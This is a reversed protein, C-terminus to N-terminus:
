FYMSISLATFVHDHVFSVWEGPERIGPSKGFRPLALEPLIAHFYFATLKPLMKRDWLDIDQYIREIHIQYPNTRRVVFDVWPMGTVHLQGQCQYFFVHSRKLSLANGNLNLCFDSKKTSAERLGMSNNMLVNKVELLGVAVNDVFVQGDPSAALFNHEPHIVLGMPQVLVTDGDGAKNIIYDQITSAESDMGRRTCANGRFTSYLLQRILPKVKLKVNRSVVRGFVSSTLRKRREAKWLESESQNQTNLQLSAIGAQDLKVHQEYFSQSTTDLTDASVDQVVDLAEEGYAMKARPKAAQTHAKSKRKRARAKVEPISKSKRSSSLQGARRKYIRDFASGSKTGTVKKWVVPSWEAGFNKRLAGGYCRAHWSGRNCRNFVKGGDFKARISMWSEALNSTYNGILRQSKNALRNLYFTVDRLLEKDVLQDSEAPQCQRSEEMADESTGETWYSNQDSLVSYCPVSEKSPSPDSEKSPSPDSEKSPSPDSDESPSPDSEKSPSPDSEKSASPDSEKSSPPDKTSEPRGKTPVKTCFNSCNTHIGFVHYVSNRIDRELLKTASSANMGHEIDASRMRIACRVGSTLRVRTGLTLKGRGKHQPKDVVLKELNTRLCKCAHNSCEKKMVHVGWIPVEEQIKAYVSSDGDAIVYLYRLNHKVEAEQFGEVIIDAEMAQSSSSWNKFCEHATAPQKRTEAATCVYCHKNRIGVHLLKGTHAGIIIAVGGMANYSHKHSRKSWGGDCVVTIFPVGDHFDDREIACRREEAGAELMDADLVSKWWVAIEQEITSFTTQSMGAMGMTGLTENLQAVGRGTVMTGWVARVNIDFRKHGGSTKIQKSSEIKFQEQCGQCQALIVTALGNHQLESILKIPNEITGNEVGLKAKECSMAHLTLSTV